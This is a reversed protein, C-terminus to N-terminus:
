RITPGRDARVLLATGLGVGIAASALVGLADESLGTNPLRQRRGRRELRHVTTQEAQVDRRHRDRRCDM